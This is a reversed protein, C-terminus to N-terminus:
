PMLLYKIPGSSALQLDADCWVAARVTQLFSTFAYESSISFEQPGALRIKYYSFDGFLVSGKTGTAIDPLGADEYVPSGLFTAPEGASIEPFWLYSGNDDCLVCLLNHANTGMVWSGNMRYGPIVSNRLTMLDNVTFSTSASATAGAVVTTSAGALGQITSSGNGTAYAAALVTAIARSCATQLEAVMDVVSSRMQEVSIQVFMDWRYSDLTTKAFVPNTITAPSGEATKQSAADTLVEPLYLEVDDPTQIIEPGAKLIGSLANLHWALSKQTRAPALFGSYSTSTDTTLLATRKEVDRATRKEAFDTWDSGEILPREDDHRFGVSVRQNGAARFDCEYDPYCSITFRGPKGQRCWERYRDAASPGADGPESSTGYAIRSARERAECDSDYGRDEAIGLMAEDLKHRLAVVDDQARQAAEPHRDYDRSLDRAVEIAKRYSFHLSKARENPITSM